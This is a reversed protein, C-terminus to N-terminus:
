IWALSSKVPLIDRKQKAKNKIKCDHLQIRLSSNKSTPKKFNIMSLNGEKLRWIIYM